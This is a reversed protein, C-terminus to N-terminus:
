LKTPVTLLSLSDPSNDKLCDKVWMSVEHTPFHPSTVLINM